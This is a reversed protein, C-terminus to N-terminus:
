RRPTTPSSPSSPRSSSTARTASRPPRRHTVKGGHQTADELNVEMATSRRPNALAGMRTDKDLGDGVKLAKANAVFQEVFEDYVGEQVLFRTPSICVQGANRFKSAAM